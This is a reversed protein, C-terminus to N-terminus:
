AQGAAQAVRQRVQEPSETVDVYGLGAIGIRSQAKRRDSPALLRVAAAAIVIPQPQIFTEPDPNMPIEKRPVETDVEQVPFPHQPSKAKEPIHASAPDTKSSM